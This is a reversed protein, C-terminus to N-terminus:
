RWHGPIWRGWAGRHPPIWVPRYAVVVPPPAVWAPAPAVFVPGGWGRRWGAQAHHPVAALALLAAILPLTIRRM